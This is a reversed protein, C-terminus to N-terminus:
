VDLGKVVDEFAYKGTKNAEGSVKVTWPDTNMEHAYQVPDGKGTGFEYFNNYSTVVNEPTLSDDPQLGAQASGLLGAGWLGSGLIAQKKLFSRRNIFAAESTLESTPIKAPKKILM